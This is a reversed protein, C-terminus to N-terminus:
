TMLSAGSKLKLIRNGNVTLPGSAFLTSLSTVIINETPEDPVVGFASDTQPAFFSGDLYTSTQTNAGGYLFTIHWDGGTFHLSGDARGSALPARIATQSAGVTVTGAVAIKGSGNHNYQANITLNSVIHDGVVNVTTQSSSAPFIANNPAAANDVWAEGSNWNLSSTDWNANAPSAMWTYDAASVSLPLTASTAVAIAAVFATLISATSNAM